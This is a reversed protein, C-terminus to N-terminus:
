SLLSMVREVQKPAQIQQYLAIALNLYDQSATIQYNAQLTIGYQLYAEALDCKAAIKDLLAIAQQHYTNALTFNAIQREISGLGILSKAQIQTYHSAQSFAIAKQWIIQAPEIIQYNFLIQGLLQMFYAFRGTNYTKDELDVILINWILRRKV